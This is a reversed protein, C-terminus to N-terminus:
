LATVSINCPSGLSEDGMQRKVESIFVSSATKATGNAQLICTLWVLGRIIDVLPHFRSKEAPAVKLGVCALHFWERECEDADCAVM